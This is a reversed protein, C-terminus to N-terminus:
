RTKRRTDFERVRALALALRTEFANYVPPYWAKVVVVNKIHQSKYLQWALLQAWILGNLMIAREVAGIWPFGFIIIGLGVINFVFGTIGLVLCLIYALNYKSGTKFVPALLLSSFPAAITMVIAAWTHITHVLTYPQGPIGSPFIAITVFGLGSLLLTAYGTKVKKGPMGTRRLKWALLFLTAGLLSFLVTQVWGHPYWVLMSITQSIPNFNRQTAELLLTGTMFVAPVFLSFYGSIDDTISSLLGAISRRPGDMNKQRSIAM